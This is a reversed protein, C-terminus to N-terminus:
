SNSPNQISDLGLLIISNEKHKMNMSIQEHNNSYSMKLFLIIKCFIIYLYKLVIPILIKSYYYILCTRDKHCHSLCEAYCIIAYNDNISYLCKKIHLIYAIIEVSENNRNHLLSDM